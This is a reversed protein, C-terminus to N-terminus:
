VRRNTSSQKRALTGRKRQQGEMEGGGEEEEKAKKKWEGGNEKVFKGFEKTAAVTIGDDDRERKALACYSSYHSALCFGM